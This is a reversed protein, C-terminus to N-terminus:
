NKAAITTNIQDAFHQAKDRATVPVYISYRQGGSNVVTLRAQFASLILAIGIVLWILGGVPQNGIAVLGLM